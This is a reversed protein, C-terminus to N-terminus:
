EFSPADAVERMVAREAKRLHEAATTPACDLAGGVDEVTARRPDDYYGLDVAAAVAEAQRDTLAPDFTAQYGEYDGVREVTVGVSEPVREVADRLAGPEGVLSLTARGREGFEVPPVLVLGPRSFTEHLLDDVPDSDDRVFVYFSGDDVPTVRHDRVRDAADLAAEYTDRDGEVYFLFTDTGGAAVTGHLLVDREVADSHDIFEHVPHIVADGFELTLRLHKM